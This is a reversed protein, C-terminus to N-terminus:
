LPRPRPLDNALLKLTKFNGYMETDGIRAAIRNLAHDWGPREIALHALALIVMQLDCEDQLADDTPIM